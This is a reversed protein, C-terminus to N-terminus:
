QMAQMMQITSEIQPVLAVVIALNGPSPIAEGTQPADITPESIRDAVADKQGQPISPDELVRNVAAGISPSGAGESRIFAYIAFVTRVTAAWDEYAEFGYAGLAGTLQGQAAEQGALDAFGNAMSDVGVDIAIGDLNRAVAFVAPIADLARSASQAELEVQQIIPAQAIVPTTTVVAAIAAAVLKKAIGM